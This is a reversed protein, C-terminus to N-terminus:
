AAITDRLFTQALFFARREDTGGKRGKCSRIERRRKSEGIMSSVHLYKVSDLVYPTNLRPVIIDEVQGLNEYVVIERVVIAPGANSARCHLIWSFAIGNNRTVTFSRATTAYCYSANRYEGEQKVCMKHEGSNGEDRKKWRRTRM